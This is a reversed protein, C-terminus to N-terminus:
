FGRLSIHRVFLDGQRSRVAPYIVVGGGNPDRYISSPPLVSVIEVIGSLSLSLDVSM